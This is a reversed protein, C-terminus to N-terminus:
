IWNLIHAIGGLTIVAVASVLAVILMLRNLRCSTEKEFRVQAALYTDQQLVCAELQKQTKAIIVTNEQTKESLGDLTRSLESNKAVQLELSEQHCAAQMAIREGLVQQGAQHEERLTAELSSLVDRTEKQIAVISTNTQEVSLQIQEYVKTSLADMQTFLQACQNEVEHARVSFEQLMSEKTAKIENAIEILKRAGDETLGKLAFYEHVLTELKGSQEALKQHQRQLESAHEAIGDAQTKLKRQQENLQTQQEYLKKSQMISLMMLQGITKSFEAQVELSDLQADRLKDNHWWRMLRNKKEYESRFNKLDDLKRYNNTFTQYIGGLDLQQLVEKSVEITALENIIESM